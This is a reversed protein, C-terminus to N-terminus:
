AFSERKKESFIYRCCFRLLIQLSDAIRLRAINCICLMNRSHIKYRFSSKTEVTHVIGSSTAIIAMIAVVVVLVSIVKKNNMLILFRHLYLFYFLQWPLIM